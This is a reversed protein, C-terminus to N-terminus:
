WEMLEKLYPTLESAMHEHQLLSPHWSAGYGLEGTQPTFDFRFIGKDGQKNLDKQIKDLTKKVISNEKEGLMPGSILVIKQTPYVTRLTKLFERYAKDYRRADYGKTSFDNTGLNICVVDPQWKAFDWAQSHDNFLTYGYQFPMPDPSGETPGAYNRYIGIGSRSISTHLAQLNRSTISAYTLYHNETEDEFPDPANVSEVGYGCTISNGIFEIKRTEIAPPDLLQCGSDLVFGWFEPHRNLGEICYMLRVSHRGATLATALNVVSDREANFSIKFSKHGDIQAMFYGSMPRAVMKLSTGEFSAIIETGPFNFSPREPNNFNVRGVYVIKPDSPKIVSGELPLTTSALLGSATLIAALLIYIRQKM